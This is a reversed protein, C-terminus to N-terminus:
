LYPYLLLTLVVVTQEDWENLGQFQGDDNFSCVRLLRVCFIVSVGITQAERAFRRYLDMDVYLM